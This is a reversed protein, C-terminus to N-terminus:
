SNGSGKNQKKQFVLHFKTGKQDSEFRCTGELQKALINIIHMGLSGAEETNLDEPLGIGDDSIELTIEDNKESIKVYISGYDRGTFAHKYINTIVENIILSCPIAQNINLEIKTKEIEISINKGNELTNHVGQVLKGIIESFILQSFSESQYLLEHITAMTQIRFISDYLRLQVEKNKEDFAQLHMMGSVVALNNKVRHHIESLLVEKEHISEQLEQEYKKRDTINRGIAVWHSYGGDAKAVPVMSTNIWFETGDKKYNVFEAECAKWKNMSQKLRELENRNTRPGNLLHLTEGIVEAPTYGTM